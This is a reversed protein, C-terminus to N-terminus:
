SRNKLVARLRYRLRDFPLEIVVILGAAFLISFFLLIAPPLNIGHTGLFEALPGHCLFLPFAFFGLFKDWKRNASFQDLRAVVAIAVLYGIAVNIHIGTPLGVHGVKAAAFGALLGLMVLWCIKLFFADKRNILIGSVFTFLIGPLGVYAWFTSHPLFPSAAFLGLSAGAVLRLTKTSCQTLLPVLLYFHLECALSWSVPILAPLNNFEQYNLPLLTLNGLAERWSLHNQTWALLLVALYLPYIRLFRDLYFTGIQDGRPSLKRCQREMLLGSLVYFSIVSWQGPNFAAAQFGFHSLAVLMALFFRYGGFM